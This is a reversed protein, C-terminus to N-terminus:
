IKIKDKCFESIVNAINELYVSSVDNSLQRINLVLRKEKENKFVILRKRPQSLDDYKNVNFRKQIEAENLYRGIALITIDFGKFFGHENVIRRDADEKNGLQKPSVQHNVETIFSKLLFSNEIETTLDPYILKILKQYQLWTNGKSPKGDYPHLPNKFKFVNCEINKYFKFDLDNIDNEVLYKWQKPNDLSESKRQFSNIPNIPKIAKEQGVLLINANPNGFGIDYQNTKNLDNLDISSSFNNAIKVLDKFSEKYM